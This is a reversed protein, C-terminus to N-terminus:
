KARMEKVLKRVVNADYKDCCKLDSLEFGSENWLYAAIDEHQFRIVQAVAYVFGQRFGKKDESLKM